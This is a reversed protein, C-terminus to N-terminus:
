FPEADRRHEGAVQNLPTKKKEVDPDRDAEDV